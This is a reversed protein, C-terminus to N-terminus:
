KRRMAQPVPPAGSLRKGVALHKEYEQRLGQGGLQDLEAPSMRWFDVLGGSTVPNVKNGAASPPAATPPSMPTAANGNPTQTQTTTAPQRGLGMDELYQRSWTAVDEPREQKLAALMRGRQADTLNATATVREFATNREIIREVEDIPMMGAPPTAQSGPKQAAQQQQGNSRRARDEALRQQVIENVQEQTFAKGEAPATGPSSTSAAPPPTTSSSAATSGGGGGSDGEQNLLAGRAGFMSWHQMASGSGSTKHTKKEIM